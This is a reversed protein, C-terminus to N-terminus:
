FPLSLQNPHKKRHNKILTKELVDMLAMVTPVPIHGSQWLWIAMQEPSHGGQSVFLGEAAGYRKAIAEVEKLRASQEPTRTSM